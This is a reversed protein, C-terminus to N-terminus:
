TKVLIALGMIFLFANSVKKYLKEDVSYYLYKEVVFFILPASIWYLFYNHNLFAELRVKTALTLIQICAMSSYCIAITARKNNKPLNKSLIAASLLSGGLNTLGHLFGMIVLYFKEYSLIRSLVIKINSVMSQLSIVILLLGIIFNTNMDKSHFLYLATFIGPLCFLLVNKYFKKDIKKFNNRIQFCNVLISAPLLIILTTQFNNGLMLLMPTGFLLIGTGFVSQLVSTLLITVLIETNM